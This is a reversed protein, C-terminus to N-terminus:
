ISVFHWSRKTKHLQESRRTLEPQSLMKRKHPLYAEHAKRRSTDKTSLIELLVLVVDSVGNVRSWDLKLGTWNQVQFMQECPGTGTKDCIRLTNM